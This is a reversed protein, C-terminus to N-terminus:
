FITREYFAANAFILRMIDYKHLRPLKVRFNKEEPGVM